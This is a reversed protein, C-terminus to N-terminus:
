YESPSLESSSNGIGMFNLARVFARSAPSPDINCGSEGSVDFLSNSGADMPLITRCTRTALAPRASTCKRSRVLDGSGLAPLGKDRLITRNLPVGCEEANRVAFDNDLTTRFYLSCASDLAVLGATLVGAGKVLVTLIGMVEAEILCPRDPPDAPLLEALVLETERLPSSEARSSSGTV